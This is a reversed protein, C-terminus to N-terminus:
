ICIGIEVDHMAKMNGEGWGLATTSALDIAKSQGIGTHKKRNPNKFCKAPTLYM